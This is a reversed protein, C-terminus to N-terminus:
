AARRVPLDELPQEPHTVLFWGHSHDSSDSHEVRTPQWKGDLMVDFCDGCHLGYDHRQYRGDGYNYWLYFIRGDSM